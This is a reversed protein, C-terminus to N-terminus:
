TDALRYRYDANRPEKKVAERFAEHAPSFSIEM